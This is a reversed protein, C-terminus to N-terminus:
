DTLDSTLIATFGYDGSALVYLLAHMNYVNYKINEKNYKICQRLEINLVM